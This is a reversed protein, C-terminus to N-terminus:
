SPVIAQGFGIAASVGGEKGAPEERFSFARGAVGRAAPISRLIEEPIAPIPVSASERPVVGIRSAM